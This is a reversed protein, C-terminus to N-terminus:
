FNTANVRWFYLTRGRGTDLNLNRYNQVKWGAANLLEDIFQRAEEEPTM